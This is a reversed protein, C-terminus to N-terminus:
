LKPITLRANTEVFHVFLKIRRGNVVVKLGLLGSTFPGFGSM